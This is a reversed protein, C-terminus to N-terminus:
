RSRREWEGRKGRVGGGGVRAGEEAKMGEKERGEGRGGKKEGNRSDGDIGGM